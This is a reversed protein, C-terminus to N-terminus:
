FAEKKSFKIFIISFILLFIFIVVAVAAGAGLNSIAFAQEYVNVTLTRTGANGGTLLFIDDFKNFTWIFRLLFLIAMIGILFPLSLYYFQQLPSTGDIEAAEYIDEPISQMRALIFLFSLPFYRWIEFIIVMSLALPFKFEYGFININTYKQGFFNIPKDIIDMELLMANFVGSFPDFLIVWTFAVAIVPSVYPFLLLGRIISRGKFSKHLIQAAFLGILLAGATGFITYYISVKLVQWFESASFIKQFNSLTFDFSTLINKTSYTALPKHIKPNDRNEKWFENRSVLLIIKGYSKAKVNKLDCIIKNLKILCKKNTNISKIDIGKPILDTLIVNKLDYKTSSNRYRYQIQAIEGNFSLKGRVNEKLILKPPRLDSLSIPKFSIWFNAFLPILVISLVLFITPLLLLFALKKEKRFLTSEKFKVIKKM